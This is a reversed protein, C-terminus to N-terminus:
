PFLEQISMQCGQTFVQVSVGGTTGQNDLVANIIVPVGVTFVLPSFPGSLADLDVVLAIEHGGNGDGENVPVSVPQSAMDLPSTVGAGHTIDLACHSNGVGGEGGANFVEATIIVRFRGTTTPTITRSCLIGRAGSLVSVTALTQVWGRALSTGGPGTPGAAGTPGAPGTPGVPGGSPGTPGAVGTPGTPGVPGGSPGPPGPAGTPGTPGTPGAPGTLGTPGTPGAPGTAGVGTPGAPGTVGQSGTPGAVGAPGTPGVPGGSPGTPGVPGTPGGAPGTPGPRSRTLRTLFEVDYDEIERKKPTFM